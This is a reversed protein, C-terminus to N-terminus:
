CLKRRCRFAIYVDWVPVPRAAEQRMIWLRGAPPHFGGVLWPTVISVCRLGWALTDFCAGESLKLVILVVQSGNKILGCRRSTSIAGPSASARVVSNCQGPALAFSGGSWLELQRDVRGRQTSRMARISRARHRLMFADLRERKEDPGAMLRLVEERPGGDPVEHVRGHFFELAEHRSSARVAEM